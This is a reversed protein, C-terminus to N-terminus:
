LENRECKLQKLYPPFLDCPFAEDGFQRHLLQMLRICDQTGRVHVQLMNSSELHTNRRIRWDKQNERDDVFNEIPQTKRLNLSWRYNRTARRTPNTHLLEESVKATKERSPPLDGQICQLFLAHWDCLTNTTWLGDHKEPPWTRWGMALSVLHRAQEDTMRCEGDERQSAALLRLILTSMEWAKMKPHRSMFLMLEHVSEDYFRKRFCGIRLPQAHTGQAKAQLYALLHKQVINNKRQM